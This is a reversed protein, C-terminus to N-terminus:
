MGTSYEWSLFWPINTKECAHTCGCALMAQHKAIELSMAVMLGEYVTSLDKILEFTHEGGGLSSDMLILDTSHLHEAKALNAESLNKAIVIEIKHGFHNKLADCLLAQMHANDEVVLVKM